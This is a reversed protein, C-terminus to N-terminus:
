VERMRELIRDKLEDPVRRGVHSQQLQIEATAVKLMVENSVVGNPPYDLQKAFEDRVYFLDEFIKRQPGTLKNFNRSRLTGPRADYVHPKNQRKINELMFADFLGAANIEDMLRDKLEFLYIVDELAYEIADDAIPRRIWNYQQYKKKKRGSDVNLAQRLVSSLDRKEYDLLVVAAQADFISLM